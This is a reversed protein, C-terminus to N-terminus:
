KELASNQFQYSLIYYHREAPSEPIKGLLENLREFRYNLSSRHITIPKATLFLTRATLNHM